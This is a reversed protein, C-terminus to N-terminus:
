LDHEKTPERERFDQVGISAGAIDAISRSYYAYMDNSLEPPASEPLSKIQELLLRSVSIRWEIDRQAQELKRDSAARPTGRFLLHGAVVGIATMVPSLILMSVDNYLINICYSALFFLMGFLSGWLTSTSEYSLRRSSVSLRSLVKQSVAILATVQPVYVM